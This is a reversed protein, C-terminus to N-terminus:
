SPVFQSADKLIEAEVQNIWPKHKQLLESITKEILTEDEFKESTLDMKEMYNFQTYWLKGTPEKAGPVRSIANKLIERNAPEGPPIVSRLTVKKPWFDLEYVFSEKGKIGTGTRPIVDHLKATLFRVYGKNITQLVYGHDQVVKEIIPSIEALRDPRNDFIFDLAEKHKMYISRALEISPHDKMIDRRVITLYDNLYHHVKEALSDNYIDLVTELNRAIESYSYTIYHESNEEKRPTFGEPTLFVFAAHKDPFHKAVRARYVSLQHESEQAYVKNEISVVFEDAEILIDINKWERYVKVNSLNYHDVQFEDSWEVKEDSFIDRLFWRLFIDGLNHSGSPDLLWALFNSHRIEASELKLINFFNTSKLNLNLKELDPDKILNSLLRRMDQQTMPDTRKTTAKIL